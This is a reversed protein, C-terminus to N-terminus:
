YLSIKNENNKGKNYLELLTHITAVIQTVGSSRTQLKYINGITADFTELGQKKMRKELFSLNFRPDKEFKVLFQTIGLIIYGKYADHQDGYVRKIFLLVKTLTSPGYEKYVKQLAVYAKIKGNQQSGRYDVELGANRVAKDIAIAEEDGRKLDANAADLKTAKKPQRNYFDWAKAEEEYTMGYHVLCSVYEIGLIKLVLMRHQGDFVYYKGNRFSVFLTGVGLPDYNKVMQNVQYTRVGSQYDDVELIDVPLLLTKVEYSFSKSSLHKKM